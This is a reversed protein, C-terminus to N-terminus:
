QTVPASPENCPSTSQEVRALCCRSRPCSALRLIPCSSLISPEKWPERAKSSDPTCPPTRLKGPVRCATSTILDRNYGTQRGALISSLWGGSPPFSISRHAFCFRLRSEGVIQCDWSSPLRSSTAPPSCFLNGGSSLPQSRYGAGSVCLCKSSTSLTRPTPLQHGTSKCFIQHLTVTRVEHDAM